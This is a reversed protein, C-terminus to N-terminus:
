LALYIVGFVAIVGLVILVAAQDGMEDIVVAVPDVIRHFIERVRM